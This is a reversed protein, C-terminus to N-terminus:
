GYTHCYLHSRYLGGTCTHVIFSVQTIYCSYMTCFSPTRVLLPCPAPLAPTHTLPSFLLIILLRWVVDLWASAVHFSCRSSAQWAPSPELQWAPLHGDKVADTCALLV